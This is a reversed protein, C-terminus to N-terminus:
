GKTHITLTHPSFVEEPEVPTSNSDESMGEMILAAIAKGVVPSLPYDRAIKACRETESNCKAELSAIALRARDVAAEAEHRLIRENTYDAYLSDNRKHLSEIEKLRNEAIRELEVIKAVAKTFAEEDSIPTDSENLM